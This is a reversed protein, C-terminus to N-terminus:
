GDSEGAGARENIVESFGNDRAFQIAKILTECDSLVEPNRMTLVHYTTM